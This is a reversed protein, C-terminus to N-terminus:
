EEDEVVEQQDTARVISILQGIKTNLLKLQAVVEDNNCGSNAQGFSPRDNRDPRKKSFGRDDAGEFCNSCLVPKRGNPKFPVECKSDCEDCIASHMMPRDDRQDRGRSYGGSNSRSGSSSRGGGYSGRSGRDNSNYGMYKNIM